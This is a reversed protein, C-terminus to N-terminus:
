RALNAVRVEYKGSGATMEMSAGEIHTELVGPARATPVGNVTAM